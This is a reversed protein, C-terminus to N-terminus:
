FIFSGSECLLSIFFIQTQLECDREVPFISSIPYIYIYTYISLPYELAM